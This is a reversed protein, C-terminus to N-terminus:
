IMTKRTWPLAAVSRQKNFLFTERIVPFFLCTEEFRDNAQARFPLARQSNRKGRERSISAHAFTLDHNSFNIVRGLSQSMKRGSSKPVYFDYRVTWFSNPEM